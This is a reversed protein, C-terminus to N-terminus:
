HLVVTFIVMNDTLCPNMKTSNFAPAQTTQVNQINDKEQGM